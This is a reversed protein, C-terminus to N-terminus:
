NGNELKDYFISKVALYVDELPRLYNRDFAKGQSRMMPRQCKKYIKVPVTLLNDQIEVMSTVHM